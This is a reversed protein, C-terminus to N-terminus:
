ATQRRWPTLLIETFPWALWEPATAEVQGLIMTGWGQRYTHLRDDPLFNQLLPHRNNVGSDLLCIVTSNGNIHIETRAQLDRLWEQQQTFNVNRGTIFDNIEQPKRLESLNDLLMLSSSLQRASAKVLMVRHEPFELIQPSLQAGIGELNTRVRALKTGDDSTRRLWAEWWVIEGPVPFPLEPADTWFSELTALQIRAINAILEANKPKDTFNGKRDKTNGNLYATIKKIFASVGGERMMVVVRYRKGNEGNEHIIEEKVTLLQFQPDNGEQNLREFKLPFNIESYFEVYLADDRVINHPLEEQEAIQFQQQIGNLQQLLANGHIARNRPALPFKVIVDKPYNYSKIQRCFDVKLHPLRQPEPM